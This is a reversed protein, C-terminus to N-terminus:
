GLRTGIVAMTCNHLGLVTWMCEALLGVVFGALAQEAVASREAGAPAAGPAQGPDGVV